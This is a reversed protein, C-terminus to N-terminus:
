SADCPVQNWVLNFGVCDSAIACNNTATSVLVNFLQGSAEVSSGTSDLLTATSFFTSFLDKFFHLDFYTFHFVKRLNPTTQFGTEVTIWFTLDLFRSTPLLPQFLVRFISKNNFFTNSLSISTLADEGLYQPPGYAPRTLLILALGREEARSFFYFIM